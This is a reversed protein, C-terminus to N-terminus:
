NWENTEAKLNIQVVIASAYAIAHSKKFQYGKDTKTWIGRNIEHRPKGILHMKGPRTLAICVALDDISRPRISQVVDFHGSVHALKNVIKEDKFAEWPPERTLLEVLHTEDRVGQYITNHLLDLKFYGKRESTQYEWVALGDLPDIPIDHFYVGSPHRRREKGRLEVAFVYQLGELADTRDFFDIDIDTKVDM